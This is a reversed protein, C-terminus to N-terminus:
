KAEARGKATCTECQCAAMRAGRSLGPAWVDAELEKVRAELTETYPDPVVVRCNPCCLAHKV